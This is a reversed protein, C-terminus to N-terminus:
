GLIAKVEDASLGAERLIREGEDGLAPAPREGRMPYASLQLPPAVTEFPGATPHEVTQFVGASRAQPDRIAEDLRNVPAWILDHKDLIPRWADLTRQAFIEELIRVLEECNRYRGIAGDFRPDGELDARGLAKCLRPWYRDSEIM